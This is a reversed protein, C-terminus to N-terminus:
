LAANQEKTIFEDFLRNDEEDSYYEGRAIQEEAEQVEARLEEWSYQHLNEERSHKLHIQVDRVLQKQEKIPLMFALNLITSYSQTQLM